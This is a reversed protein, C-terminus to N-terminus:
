LATAYRLEPLEVTTGRPTWTQTTGDAALGMREYFRRANTNEALVWLRMDPYGDAKLRGRAMSLLRRGTGQGWHDPSVYIAYLEGAARDIEGDDERYPGFTVFGVLNGDDEAVLTQSGPTKPRTRLNQARAVPDLSALHDAPVIGAYGAQWTRVSLAAIEDIDAETSPRIVTMGFNQRVGARVHLDIVGSDSETLWARRIASAACPKV